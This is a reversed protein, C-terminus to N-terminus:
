GRGIYLREDGIGQHTGKEALKRSIVRQLLGRRDRRVGPVGIGLAEEVGRFIDSGAAALVPQLIDADLSERALRPLEAGDLTELRCLYGGHAESKSM